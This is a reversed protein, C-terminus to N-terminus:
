RHVSRTLAFVFLAICFAGLFAESAALARVEVPTPTKPLEGVVFAVFSQFSLLLDGTLTEAARFLAFVGAYLVVVAVSLGVTRQPREGYGVTLDLALNSLGSGLARLRTAADEGDRVTRWASRRRNRMERLFFEAGATSDGVAEAGNKAKLYTDVLDNVGPREVAGAFSHIDWGGALAETHRGFDFGDFTTNVFRYADLSTVPELDHQRLTVAGVTAGTLDYLTTGTAPQRIRGGEIVADSLDVPGDSETAGFRARDSAVLEPARLGEDFTADTFLVKEGFTAEVMAARGEWEGRSFDCRGGVEFESMDATDRFTAGRFTIDGAVVTQLFDAAGGFTAGRFDTKRGGLTARKFTADGAFECDTFRCRDHFAAKWFTAEGEIRAGEFLVDDHFTADTASLRGEIRAGDFSLRGTATADDLVVAGSVALSRADVRQLDTGRLRLAAVRAGTLQLPRSTAGQTLDVPGDVVAHRLDVPRTDPGELRTYPIDLADLRAGLYSRPGDDSSLDALFRDTLAPKADHDHPLHVACREDAVASRPCREPPDPGPAAAMWARWWAVVDTTPLVDTGATLVREIDVTDIDSPSVDLETALSQRRDSPDDVAPHRELLELVPRGDLFATVQATWESSQFFRCRGM